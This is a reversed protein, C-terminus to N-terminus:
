LVVIIITAALRRSSPIHWGYASTRSLIWRSNTRLLVGCTTNLSSFSKFPNPM